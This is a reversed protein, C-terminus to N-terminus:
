VTSIAEQPAAPEEPKPSKPTDLALDVPIQTIQQRDFPCTQNLRLSRVICQRCLEHGCEGLRWAKNREYCIECILDENEAQVVAGPIVRLAESYDLWEELTHIPPPPQCDPCLQGRRCRDICWSSGCKECRMKQIRQWVKRFPYTLVNWISRIVWLIGQGIMVFSHYAFDKSVVILLIFVVLLIIQGWQLGTTSIAAPCRTMVELGGSCCAWVDFEVPTIENNTFNWTPCLIVRPLSVNVPKVCIGPLERCLIDSFSPMFNFNENPNLRVRYVVAANCAISYLVCSVILTTISLNKM